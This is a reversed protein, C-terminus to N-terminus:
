LIKYKNYGSSNFKKDFFEPYLERDVTTKSSENYMMIIFNNYTNKNDIIKIKYRDKSLNILLNYLYQLINKNLKYWLNIHMETKPLKIYINNNCSINLIYKTKDNIICGNNRVSYKNDYGEIKRWTVM